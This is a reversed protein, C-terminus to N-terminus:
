VDRPRDPDNEMEKNLEDLDVGMVKATHLLTRLSVRERWLRLKAEIHKQREEKITLGFGIAGLIAGAIILVFAIINARPWQILVAIGIPALMVCVSTWFTAM